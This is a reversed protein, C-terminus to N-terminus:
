RVAIVLPGAPVASVLYGGGPQPTAPIGNVLVVLPDAADVPGALAVGILLQRSRLFPQSLETTLAGGTAGKLLNAKTVQMQDLADLASM